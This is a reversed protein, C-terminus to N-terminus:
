RMLIMKRTQSFDGAKLTYIYVGSGVANGSYDRGNWIVRQYGAKYSNSVLQRVLQGNLNYITLTVKSDRPLAFEITTEPNFPNPYNPNLAFEKPLAKAEDIALLSVTFSESRESENLGFDTATVTYTYVESQTIADDVYEATTAYGLLAFDTAGTKRYVTYYKVKESTVAEWQLEVTMGSSSATLAGPASPPLNDESWGALLNSNWYSWNDWGTAVILFGTWHINDGVKDYLTPVVVNYHDIDPYVPVTTVFDWSFPGETGPQPGSFPEIARWIQYEKVAGQLGEARKWTLRVKKGHDEPVDLVDILQPGFVHMEPWMVLTEEPKEGPFDFGRWEPNFGAKNYSANIYGHPLAIKYHGFQDTYTYGMYEVKDNNSNYKEMYVFVKRLANEMDDVVNGELTDPIVIANLKYTITTDSQIDLGESIPSFGNAGVQFDYWGPKVMVDFFGNDDTFLMFPEYYDWNFIMLLANKIPVDNADLVNGNVNINGVISGMWFELYVPSDGVWIGHIDYPSYGDVYATADYWGFSIHEVIFYGNQDTYLEYYEPGYIEVRAGSIGYGDENYVYGNIKGETVPPNIYYDKAYNNGSIVYFTDRVSPMGEGPWYVEIQWIKGPYPGGVLPLEFYGSDNTCNWYQLGTDEQWAYIQADFLPSNTGADYVTGSLVADSIVAVFDLGSAPAYQDGYGDPTLLAEECWASVWYRSTDIGGWDNPYPVQQLATSVPLNYDGSADTYTMNFYGSEAGLWVDAHVEVNELPTGDSTSVNGTFSADFNFLTFNVPHNGNEFVELHQSWPFMYNGYIDEYALEVSWWGPMAPIEYYGTADTVANFDGFDSWAWINIGAVPSGADDLVTGFIKEKAAILLFDVNPIDGMIPMEFQPPNPFYGPYMYWVDAIGIFYLGRYMDPIEIRYYGFEDTLTVFGIQPMWDGGSGGSSSDPFQFAYVIVNAAPIPALDDVMVTGEISTNEDPAGVLAMGEFTGSNNVEWAKIFVIANQLGFFADPGESGINGSSITVQFIGDGPPSEDFEIGDWVQVEEGDTDFEAKMDSPTLVSDGDDIWFEVVVVDDSFLQLVFQDGAIYSITDPIGAILKMTDLAMVVDTSPLSLKSKSQDVVKFGNNKLLQIQQHTKQQANYHDAARMRKQIMDLRNQKSDIRNMAEVKTGMSESHPNTTAMMRSWQVRKIAQNNNEAFVFTSILTIVLFFTILKKM